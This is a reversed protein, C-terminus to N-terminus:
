EMHLLHHIRQINTYDYVRSSKLITTLMTEDNLITYVKRLNITHSLPQFLRPKMKKSYRSVQPLSFFQTIAITKAHDLPLVPNIHFIPTGEPLIADLANHYKYLTKGQSFQM